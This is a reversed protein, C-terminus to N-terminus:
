DQNFAKQPAEKACKASRQLCFLVQCRKSGGVTNVSVILGDLVGRDGEIPLRVIHVHNIKYVFTGQWNRGTSFKILLWLNYRRAEDSGGGGM